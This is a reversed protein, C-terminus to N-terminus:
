IMIRKAIETFRDQTPNSRIVDRRLSEAILKLIHDKAMDSLGFDVEKLVVFFTGGPIRTVSEFSEGNMTGVLQILIDFKETNDNFVRSIDYKSIDFHYHNVAFPQSSLEDILKTLAKM